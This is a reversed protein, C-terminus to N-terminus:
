ASTPRDEDWSRGLPPTPLRHLAPPGTAQPLGVKGTPTGLPIGLRAPHRTSVATRGISSTLRPSSPRTVTMVPNNPPSASSTRSANLCPAAFPLGSLMTTGAPKTPRRRSDYSSPPSGNTTVCGSITSTRRLKQ